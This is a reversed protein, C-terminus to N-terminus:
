YYNGAGARSYIQEPTMGVTNDQVTLGGSLLSGVGSAITGLGGGGVVWEGLMGMGASALQELLGPQNAYKQADQMAKQAKLQAAMRAAGANSQMLELQAMYYDDMAKALGNYSALVAQQTQMDLGQEQLNTAIKQEGQRVNELINDREAAYSMTAYQEGRGTEYQSEQLARDKEGKVLDSLQQDVSRSASETLQTAAAPNYGGGRLAQERASKEATNAALQKSEKAQQMANTLYDKDIFEDMRSRATTLKGTEDLLGQQAYYDSPSLNRIEQELQDIQAQIEDRKPQYQPLNPLGKLEQTLQEITNRYAQAKAEYGQARKWDEPALEQASKGVVGLQANAAANAAEAKGTTGMFVDALGSLFDAM